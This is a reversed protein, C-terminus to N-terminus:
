TSTEKRDPDINPPAPNSIDPSTVLLPLQLRTGSMALTRELLSLALAPALLLYVAAEGALSWAPPLQLLWVIPALLVLPLASGLILGDLRSSVFWSWRLLKFYAGESVQEPLLFPLTFAPWVRLALIALAIGALTMGIQFSPNDALGSDIDLQLVSAVVPIAVFLLALGALWALLVTVVCAYRRRWAFGARAAQQVGLVEAACSLLPLSGFAVLMPSLFLVADRGLLWESAAMFLWLIVAAPLFNLWNQMFLGTMTGLQPRPLSSLSGPDVKARTVEQLEPQKGALVYLGLAAFYGSMGALWLGDNLAASDIEGGLLVRLIIATLVALFGALLHVRYLRRGHALLAARDKVSQIRWSWLWVFRRSLTFVLVLFLPTDLFLMAILTFAGVLLSFYLVVATLLSRAAGFLSRWRAPHGHLILWIISLSIGEMFIMGLVYADASGGALVERASALCLWALMFEPYAALLRRVPKDLTM